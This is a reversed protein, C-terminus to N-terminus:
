FIANEIKSSFRARSYTAFNTVNQGYGNQCPLTQDPNKVSINLAGIYLVIWNFFFVFYIVSDFQVIHFINLKMHPCKNGHLRQTTRKVGFCMLRVDSWNCRGLCGWEYGHCFLSGRDSTNKGLGWFPVSPKWQGPYAVHPYLSWWWECNGGRSRNPPWQALDCHWM